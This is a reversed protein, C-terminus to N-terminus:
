LGPLAAVGTLTVCLSVAWRWPFTLHILLSVAPLWMFNSAFWQVTITTPDILAALAMAIMCYVTVGAVARRQTSLLDRPSCRLRWYQSLLFLALAPQAWRDHPAIVGSTWESIWLAMLAIAAILLIRLATKREILSLASEM